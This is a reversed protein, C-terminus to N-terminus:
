AERGLGWSEPGFHIAVEKKTDFKCRSGRALNAQRMVSWTKM